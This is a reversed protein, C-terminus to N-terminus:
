KEKLSRIDTEAFQQSWYSGEKKVSVCVKVPSGNPLVVGKDSAPDM